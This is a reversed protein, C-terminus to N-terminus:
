YKEAKDILESLYATSFITDSSKIVLILVNCLGAEQWESNRVGYTALYDLAELKNM